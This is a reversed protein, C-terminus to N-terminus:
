MKICRLGIADIMDELPPIPFYYKITIKISPMITWVCEWLSSDKKPAVLAPCAWSKQKLIHVLVKTFLEEVQQKMKALQMPLM